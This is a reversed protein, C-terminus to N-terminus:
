TASGKLLTQITEARIKDLLGSESEDERDKSYHQMHAKQTVFQLATLDELSVNLMGLLVGFRLTSLHEIAEGATIKRCNTLIGWSRYVLDEMDLNRRSLLEERAKREYHVLQIGLNELKELIEKEGSGMSFQNAVQYMDGLSLHEDTFYGKVNMGLQVIAKLAKEILGTRVLAPLHMLLSARFGCGANTVDPTLYGFDISVAYDLTDELFDDLRNVRDFTRQLDLGPMIGSFRLHDKENVMGSVVQDKTLFFSKFTKLSFDQTIMNRELLIRREVPSIDGLKVVDMSDPNEKGALAASILNDVAAREEEEMIHPFRYGQLNRSLRVRSSVIVDSEPGPAAYWGRPELPTGFDIM